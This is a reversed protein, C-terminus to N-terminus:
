PDEVYFLMLMQDGPVVGAPRPVKCSSERTAYRLASKGVFAIPAASAYSATSASAAIMAIVCLGTTGVRKM